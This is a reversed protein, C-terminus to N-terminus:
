AENGWIMTAFTEVHELKKRQEEATLAAPIYHAQQFGKQPLLAIRDYDHVEVVDEIRKVVTDIDELEAVTADVIGIGVQKDDPVHRPLDQAVAAENHFPVIFKDYDTAFLVAVRDYDVAGDLDDGWGVTLGVKQSEEKQLGAVVANDIQVAEDFTLLEGGRGVLHASYDPNDLQIFQVGIELLHEIEDRLLEAIADGLAAAGPYARVTKLEDYCQAALHAASPLKVKVPLQTQELLFAADDSAIPKKLKLPADVIWTGFGGPGMREPDRTFGAVSHLVPSRYDGYRFGGDTLCSLTLHRQAKIWDIIAADEIERLEDATIEGARLEKRARQIDSPRVNDGHNDIRYAFYNAM